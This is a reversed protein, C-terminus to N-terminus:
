AVVSHVCGGFGIDLLLEIVCSATDKPALCKTATFIREGLVESFQDIMPVSKFTDPLAQLEFATM